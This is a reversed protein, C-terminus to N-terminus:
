IGIITSTLGNVLEADTSLRSANVGASNKPDDFWSAPM